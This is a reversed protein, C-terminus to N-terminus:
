RDIKISTYYRDLLGSVGSLASVQFFFFCVALCTGGKGTWDIGIHSKCDKDGGQPFTAFYVPCLVIYLHHCRLYSKLSIINGKYRTLLGLVRSPKM